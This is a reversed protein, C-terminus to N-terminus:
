RFFAEFSLQQQVSTGPEGSGPTMMPPGARAVGGMMRTHTLMLGGCAAKANATALQERLEVTAKLTAYKETMSALEDKLKDIQGRLAHLADEVARACPAPAPPPAAPPPKPAPKPPKQAAVKQAAERAMRVAKSVGSPGSTRRPKKAAQAATVDPATVDPATVAPANIAPANIAPATIAPETVAVISRKARVRGVLALPSVDTVTAAGAPQNAAQEEVPAPARARAVFYPGFPSGIIERPTDDEM